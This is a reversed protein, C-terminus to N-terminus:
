QLPLFKKGRSIYILFNLKTEKNNERYTYILM